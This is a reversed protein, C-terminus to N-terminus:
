RTTVRAFDGWGELRLVSAAGRDDICFHLIPWGYLRTLNHARWNVRFADYHWHELDGVNEGLRLVLTNGELGVAADGYLSDVSAYRGAYQPLPLTPATGSIRAPAHARLDALYEGEGRRTPEIFQHSWDKRPGGLYADAVWYALALPLRNMEESHNTLVVVGLHDEPFLAAESAWGYNGGAHHSIWHGRYTEEFWAMSYSSWSAPPHYKQDSVESQVLTQPTHMERMVSDSVIRQGGHIGHALHLRLWQAMDAASSNITSAPGVNADNLRAIPQLHGDVVEYPTAANTDAAGASDTTRSRRMGLPEFLRHRVFDNWSQGTKARIIEAAVDFTNNQYIFTSRLSAEPKLFRLRYVVGALDIPMGVQMQLGKPLGTRQTLLDRVTVERTLYSNALRFEPLYTIVPADWQVKGEDVLVGVATATFAKSTSAIEFLTQADVPTRTALDRVGYGRAVVVSDNRVVAIALGPIDWEKMARTVYADLGRLPGSQACLTKAGGLASTGSAAVLALLYRLRM